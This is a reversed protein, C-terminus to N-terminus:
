DKKAFFRNKTILYTENVGFTTKKQEFTDFISEFEFDFIKIKKEVIAEKKKQVLKCFDVNEPLPPDREFYSIKLFPGSHDWM